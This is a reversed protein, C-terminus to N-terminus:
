SRARELQREAHEILRRAERLDTQVVDSTPLVEKTPENWIRRVLLGTLGVLATTLVPFGMALLQNTTM